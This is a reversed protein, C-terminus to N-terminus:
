STPCPEAKCIATCEKHESKATRAHPVTCIQWKPNVTSWNRHHGNQAHENCWHPPSRNAPHEGRPPASCNCCHHREVRNGHSHHQPEARWHLMPIIPPFVKRLGFANHRYPQPAANGH